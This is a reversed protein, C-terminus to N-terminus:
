KKKQLSVFKNHLELVQPILLDNEGNKIVSDAREIMEEEKMQSNMRKRIDEMSIQDREAVRKLRVDMPASVVVIHDFFGKGGSNLLLAAEEIVYASSQNNLYWEKFVRHVYPHVLKNLEKLLDRNNFVISAIYSTNYKNNIYSKSGFLNIIQQKLPINENILQKAIVDAYFVPVGFSEFIRAVTTKGAGIGGTLGIKITM